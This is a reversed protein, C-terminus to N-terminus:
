DKPFQSLMADVRAKHRKAFDDNSEGEKQTTTVVIKVGGSMWESTATDVFRTERQTRIEEIINRTQHYGLGGLALTILM